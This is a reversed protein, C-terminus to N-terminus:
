LTLAILSFNLYKNEKGVASLAFLIKSWHTFEAPMAAKLSFLMQNIVQFIKSFYAQNDVGAQSTGERVQVEVFRNVFKRNFFFLNVVKDKINVKIIM